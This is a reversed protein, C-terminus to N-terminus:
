STIDIFVSNGFLVVEGLTSMFKHVRLRRLSKAARAKEYGRSPGGSGGRSGTSIAPVTPYRLVRDQAEAYSQFVWLGVHELMRLWYITHGTSLAYILM